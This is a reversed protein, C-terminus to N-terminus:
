LEELEEIETLEEPVEVEELAEIEEPEVKEEVAEEVEVPEVEELIEVEQLTEVTKLSEAVVPTTETVTQIQTVSIPFKQGSFVNKIAEELNSIDIKAVKEESYKKGLVEVIEDWSKDILEDASKEDKIGKIGRKIEKKVKDRRTQITQQWRAFDIEGKRDMYETLFRIQFRKIRESLVVMRDQKLSLVLFVILFVSIAFAVFLLIKLNNNIKLDSQNILYGVNGIDEVSKSFLLLTTGEENTLVPENEIDEATIWSKEIEDLIETTPEINGSFLYGTGGPLSIYQSWQLVGDKILYSKLNELDVYYLATGRFNDSLDIVPSRYILHKGKSDLTIETEGSVTLILENSPINTEVESLKRYIRQYDSKSIYDGPESSYHLKGDADVLRVYLFGPLASKLKKILNDTNFILESSQERSFNQYLIESEDIEKYRDLYNQHYNRILDSSIILQKDIESIVRNNYIKTEISTFLGTFSLIAFIAFCLVTILLSFAIRQAAKM